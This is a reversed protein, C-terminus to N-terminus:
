RRWREKLALYVCVCVRVCYMGDRLVTGGGSTRVEQVADARQALYSSPANMVVSKALQGAPSGRRAKSQGGDDGSGGDYFSRSGMPSSYGPNPRQRGHRRRYPNVASVAAASAFPSAGTGKKGSNLKGSDGAGVGEGKGPTGKTATGTGGPVLHYGAKRQQQARLRTNRTELTSKFAKTATLM